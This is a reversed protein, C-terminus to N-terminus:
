VHVIAEKMEKRSHSCDWQEACEVSCFTVVITSSPFEWELTTITQGEEFEQDCWDCWPDDDHLHEIGHKQSKSMVVVETGSHSILRM